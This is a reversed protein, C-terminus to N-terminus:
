SAHNSEKRNLAKQLSQVFQVAKKFPYKKSEDIAKVLASGVIVGDAQLSAQRVQAATSIGFGVAVPVRSARKVKKLFQPLDSPLSQRAGTVGKLSVAYLFGRSRKGIQALRAAETTPAALFILHVQHRRASQEFRAGEEPILDPIIIGDVGSAQARGFFHDIGMALIPNSYSMFILPLQVHPRVQQVTKLVWSLTAGGQLAQQSSRQITPGDAMPDSFPIGLELMDLGAKELSVMLQPLSRKDPSGATIYGILAKRGERKLTKFCHDIRNIKM